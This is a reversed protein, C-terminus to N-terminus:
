YRAVLFRANARSLKVKLLSFNIRVGSQDVSVLLAAMSFVLIVAIALTLCECPTDCPMPSPYVRLSLDASHM